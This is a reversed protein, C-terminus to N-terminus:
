ALAFNGALAEDIQRPSALQITRNHVHTGGAALAAVFDGVQEGRLPSGPRTGNPGLFAKMVVDNVRPTGATEAAIAEILKNQAAAAVAIAGIGPPPPSIFGAPGNITTYSGGLAILPLLAEAALFHPYLRTEIVHKFEAFGAQLMSHSQHWSAPASAVAFLESSLDRVQAQVQVAGEATGIDGNVPVLRDAAAGLRSRLRELNQPSRSPVLVRAGARLFGDVLFFGVNGTGGVVLTDHGKLETGNLTTM